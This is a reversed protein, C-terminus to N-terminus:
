KCGCGALRGNGNSATASPETTRTPGYMLRNVAKIMRDGIDISKFGFAARMENMDAAGATVLLQWKKLELDWDRPVFPEIWVVLKDDGFMPRLWETLCQSLLMIKPNVTFQAFHEQAALSSARNVSEVQGAVIPNTGFALFIREKTVKGSNLWDMEAPTNSLKKVDAIMSDLILPDGHLMAGSYRQRIARILQQEQPGTLRPRKGSEGEDGIIIAHSPHIGNRFMAGQSAVINDDADVAAAAAQLPSWSAHPDGPHPYSFWVADDADIPLPDGAYSPPRILWREFSTAGETAEIWSTPIPYVRRRGDQLPCWWLQCGTLELSCVTVYMLSWAVMLDNPDALM